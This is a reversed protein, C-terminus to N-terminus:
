SQKRYPVVQGHSDTSQGDIDKYWRDALLYETSVPIDPCLEQMADVLIQQIQSVAADYDTGDPILVLMEDHVFGCVQFGARLLRFLALKNGDAALGQFPSNAAQTFNVHGRLRGSITVANGYFCRRMLETSSQKAELKAQLALNRNLQKLCLWIHEVLGPQYADCDPMEICGSVIRAAIQIQDRRTFAQHVATITSHLSDGLNQQQSDSLYARLEPYVQTILRQRFDKAQEITMEVGYSHKALSVLSPAGLGGPVGFNCVKAKQRYKKQVAAPLENFQEPTKGLM